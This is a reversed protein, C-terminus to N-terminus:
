ARKSMRSKLSWAALAALALLLLVLGWTTAGPVDDSTFAGPGHIWGNTYVGIPGAMPFAVYGQSVSPFPGPHDAFWEVDRHNSAHTFGFTASGGPQIVV